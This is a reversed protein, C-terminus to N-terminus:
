SKGLTLMLLGAFISPILPHRKDLRAAGDPRWDFETNEAENRLHILLCGHRGAQQFSLFKGGKFYLMFMAMSAAVVQYAILSSM